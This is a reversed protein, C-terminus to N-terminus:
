VFGVLCMRKKVLVALLQSRRRGGAVQVFSIHNYVVYSSPNSERYLWSLSGAQNLNSHSLSSWLTCISIYTCFRIHVELSDMFSYTAFVLLFIWGITVDCNINGIKKCDKLIGVSFFTYCQYCLLLIVGMIVRSSSTGQQCNAIYTLLKIRFSVGQRLLYLPDLLCDTGQYSNVMVMVIQDM